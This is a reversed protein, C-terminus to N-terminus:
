RLRIGMLPFCYGAISAPYLTQIDLHTATDFLVVDFEEFWDAKMGSPVVARCGGSLRENEDRSASRLNSSAVDTKV